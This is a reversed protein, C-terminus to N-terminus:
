NVLYKVTHSFVRFALATVTDMNLFGINEHVNGLLICLVANPVSAYLPLPGRLQRMKVHSVVCVPTGSTRQLCLPEGNGVSLMGTINCQM